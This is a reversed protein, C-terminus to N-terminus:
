RGFPKALRSVAQEAVRTWRQVGQRLNWRFVGWRTPYKGLVYELGRRDFDRHFGRDSFPLFVKPKCYLKREVPVERFLQEKTYATRNM